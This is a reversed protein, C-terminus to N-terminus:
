QNKRMIKKCKEMWRQKLHPQSFSSFCFSQHRGIRLSSQSTKETKMLVTFILFFQLSFCFLFFLLTSHFSFHHFRKHLKGEYRMSGRGRRRQAIADDDRPKFLWSLSALARSLLGVLEELTSYSLFLERSMNNM